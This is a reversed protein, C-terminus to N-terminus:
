ESHNHLLGLYNLKAAYHEQKLIEDTAHKWVAQLDSGCAADVSTSGANTSDTDAAATPLEMQLCLRQALEQYTLLRNFNQMYDTLWDDLTRSMVITLDEPTASEIQSLVYLGHGFPDDCAAKQPNGSMVSGPLHTSGSKSDTLDSISVGNSLADLWGQQIDVVKMVRDQVLTMELLVKEREEEYVRQQKAAELNGLQHQLQREVKGLCELWFNKRKNKSKSKSKRAQSPTDKSSVM